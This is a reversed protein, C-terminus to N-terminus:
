IALAILLLAILLWHQKPSWEQQDTDLKGRWRLNTIQQPENM